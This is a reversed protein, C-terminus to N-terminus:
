FNDDIMSTLCTKDSNCFDCANNDFNCYASICEKDCIDNALRESDCVNGEM